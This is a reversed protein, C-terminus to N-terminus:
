RADTDGPSFVMGAARRVGQVVRKYKTPTTCVSLLRLLNAAQEAVDADPSMPVGLAEAVTKRLRVLGRVDMKHPEQVLPSLKLSAHVPLDNVGRDSELTHRRTPMADTTTTTTTTTTTNWTPSVTVGPVPAQEHAVMFQVLRKVSEFGFSGKPQHVGGSSVAPNGVAKQLETVLRVDRPGLAVLRVADSVAGIVCWASLCVHSPTIACVCVGAICEGVGGGGGGGGTWHLVHVCLCLCVSVCSMCARCSVVRCTVVGCGSM